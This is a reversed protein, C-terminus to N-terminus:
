GLLGLPEKKRERMWVLHRDSVRMVGYAPRSSHWVRGGLERSRPWHCTVPPCATQINQCWPLHSLGAAEASGVGAQLENLRNARVARDALQASRDLDISRGGRAGSNTRVVPRDLGRCRRVWSEGVANVLRLAVPLVCRGGAVVGEGSDFVARSWDVGSFRSPRAHLKHCAECARARALLRLIQRSRRTPLIRVGSSSRRSESVPPDCGLENASEGRGLAGAPRWRTARRLSLVGEWIWFGASPGERLGESARM